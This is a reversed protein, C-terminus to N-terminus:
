SDILGKSLSIEEKGSLFFINVMVKCASSNKELIYKYASFKCFFFANHHNLHLTGIMIIQNSISKFSKKIVSLLSDNHLCNCNTTYFM